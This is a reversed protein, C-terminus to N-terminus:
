FFFLRYVIAVLAVIEVTNMIDNGYKERFSKEAIAIETKTEKVEAEAKAILAAKEDELAQITTAYIDSGDAKFRAIDAEIKEIDTQVGTSQTVQATDQAVNQQVPQTVNVSQQAPQAATNQVEDAM